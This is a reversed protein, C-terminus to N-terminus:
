KQLNKPNKLALQLKPTLSRHNEIELNKKFM